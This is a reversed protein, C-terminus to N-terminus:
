PRRPEVWGEAALLGVGGSDISANIKDIIHFRMTATYKRHTACALASLRSYRFSFDFAVVM